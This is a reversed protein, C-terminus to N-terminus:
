LSCSTQTPAGFWTEPLPREIKCVIGIRLTVELGSIRGIHSRAMFRLDFSM